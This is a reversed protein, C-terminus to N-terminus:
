APRRASALRAHGAEPRSEKNLGSAVTIAEAGGASEDVACVITKM